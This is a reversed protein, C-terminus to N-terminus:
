PNSGEVQVFIVRDTEPNKFPLDQHSMEQVKQELGRPGMIQNKQAKLSYFNSELRKHENRLRDLEYGEALIKTRLAVHFLFALVLLLIMGIIRFLEASKNSAQM